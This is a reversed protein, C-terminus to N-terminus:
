DAVVLGIAFGDYGKSGVTQLATTSVRPESALLENFRRVGQVSTDNSATDIVAGNRVVNDAIILSGRRSLKLAWALYDPNNPKDADIFILDFPSRGEAALQPLTSLAQGLRLEVVDSLGARAINSQAVEAHKADAELTILYGDKPLARALWITSYGGLTGIELITRAGQLQALLLLLKGQNPSVNHPPLGAATSAELAADLVSDSPVFLDTLYRDVATWQEQTM